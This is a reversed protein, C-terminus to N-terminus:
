SSSPHSTTGTAPPPTDAGEALQRLADGQVRFLRWESLMEAGLDEYFRHADTNWDLAMWEFRGCAREVAIAAVRRLLLTGLGRRRYEPTVYLDELYMGRRALFTSYTHFYVAFGAPEDGAFALLAEAAPQDGFLSALLDEETATVQHTLHEYEAIGHIFALLRPVDAATAPRITFRPQQTM